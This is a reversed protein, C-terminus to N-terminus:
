LDEFNAPFLCSLVVFNPDSGTCTFLVGTPKNSDESLLIQHTLKMGGADHCASSLSSFVNNITKIEGASEYAQGCQPSQGSPQSLATEAYINQYILISFLLLGQFFKM